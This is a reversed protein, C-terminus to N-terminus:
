EEEEPLTSDFISIRVSQYADVYYEAHDINKAVEGRWYEICADLYNQIEERTDITM